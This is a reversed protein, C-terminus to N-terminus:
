RLHRWYKVIATSDALLPRVRLIGGRFKKSMQRKTNELIAVFFVRRKHIYDCCILILAILHSFFQM